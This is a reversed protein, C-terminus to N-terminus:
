NYSRWRSGRRYYRRYGGGDRRRYYRRRYTRRRRPAPRARQESRKQAQQAARQQAAKEQAQKEQAAQKQQAAQRAKQLAQRRQLKGHLARQAAQAKQQAVQAAHQKAAAQAAKQQAARAAAAQLAGQKAAEEAAIDPTPAARTSAATPSKTPAPQPTATPPLSSATPPLPSATAIPSATPSPTASPSPSATPLPTRTPLPAPLPADTKPLVNANIYLRSRARLWLGDDVGPADAWPKDKLVLNQRTVSATFVPIAGVAFVPLTIDARSPDNLVVGTVDINQLQADDHFAIRIIRAATTLVAHREAAGRRTIEFRVAAARYPQTGARVEAIDISVLRHPLKERQLEALLRSEAAPLYGGLLTQGLPPLDRTMFAGAAEAATATTGEGEHATNDHTEHLDARTSAGLSALSAHGSAGMLASPNQLLARMADGYRPSRFLHLLSFAILALLTLTACLAQSKVRWVLTKGHAGALRLSVRCLSLMLLALAYGALAGLFVDAPYNTGCIIRTLCLAFVVAFTPLALPPFLAWLATSLVAALMTEPSPFSNDNPEIVLATVRHIVFPRPSLIEAGLFRWAFANVAGALLLCSIAALTAALAVKWRSADGRHPELRAAHPRFILMAALAMALLPVAGVYFFRLAADAVDSRGALGNLFILFQM